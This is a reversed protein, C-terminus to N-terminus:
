MEIIDHYCDANYKAKCGKPVYLTILKSCFVGKLWWAPETWHVYIKKLNDCYEFAPTGISTVSQPIDISTLSVCHEFASYGFGTLTTAPFTVSSLNKCNSFAFSEITTVGEPFVISTLKQCNQFAAQGISIISNPLIIDTLNVCDKFTSGKIRQLGEPLSVSVLNNCGYFAAGGLDQVSNSIVVSTLSSCGEFAHDGITTVSNPISITTLSACRLFTNKGISLLTNPLRISEIYKASGLGSMTESITKIGDSIFVSKINSHLELNYLSIISTVPHVVDRYVITAPITLTGSITAKQAVAVVSAEKTTKDIEYGIEDIYIAIQGWSQATFIFVACFIFIIKRKM